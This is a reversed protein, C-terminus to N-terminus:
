KLQRWDIQRIVFDNCVCPKEKCNWCGSGYRSLVHSELDIGLFNAAAITWAFADALELATEQLMEERTITGREMNFRLIVLECIEKSLRNLINEIGKKKNNFGYLEELHACWDHLEWVNQDDNKLTLDCEPRLGDSCTCPKCTCYACVHPYKHSLSQVFDLTHITYFNFYEAVCFIRSIIRSLAMGVREKYADKRIADQVDGIAVALFDIRDGLNPMFYRNREGYLAFFHEQMEALKM